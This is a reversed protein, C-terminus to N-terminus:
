VDKSEEQSSPKTPRGRKKANVSKSVTSWSKDERPGGGRSRVKQQPAEDGEAIKKAIYENRSQKVDNRTECMLKGGRVGVVSTAQLEYKGDEVKSVGIEVYEGQVLYKYQQDGVEIVSHHVFIDKDTYEGENVSVFGYGVRNNFWKVRGIVRSSTDSM